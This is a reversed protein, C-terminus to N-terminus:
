WRAGARGERRYSGRLLDLQVTSPTNAGSGCWITGIGLDEATHAYLHGVPHIGLPFSIHACDSQNAGVLAWARRFSLLGYRMDQASRPYFIPRGTIGGSRWYEVVNSRPEICFNDYFADSPLQRLEDKTLLPIRTWVEPDDLRALNLEGLRTKYFPVRM